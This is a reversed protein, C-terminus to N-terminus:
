PRCLAAFLEPLRWVPLNLLPSNWTFCDFFLLARPSVSMIMFPPLQPRQRALRLLLSALADSLRAAIRRRRELALPRKRVLPRFLEAVTRPVIQSTVSRQSPVSVCTFRPVTIRRSKRRLFFTM